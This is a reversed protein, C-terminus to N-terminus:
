MRVITCARREISVDLTPCDPGNTECGLTESLFIVGRVEWSAHSLPRKECRPCPQATMVGLSDNQALPYRHRQGVASSLFLTGALCFSFSRLPVTPDTARSRPVSRKPTLHSYDCKITTHHLFKCKLNSGMSSGLKRQDLDPGPDHCGHGDFHTHTHRKKPLTPSM